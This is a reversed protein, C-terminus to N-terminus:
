LNRSIQGKCWENAETWRMPKLWLHSVQKSDRAAHITSHRQRSAFEIKNEFEVKIKKIFM